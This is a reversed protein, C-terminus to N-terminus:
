LESRGGSDQPWLGGQLHVRQCSFNGPTQTEARGEPQLYLDSPARDLFSQQKQQRCTRWHDQPGPHALPGASPLNRQPGQCGGCPEAPLHCPHGQGSHIATAPHAPNRQGHEQQCLVRQSEKYTMNPEVWGSESTRSTSPTRLYPSDRM